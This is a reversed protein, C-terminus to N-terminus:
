HALVRKAEDLAGACANANGKADADRAREIAAKFARVNDPPLDGLNEEAHAVSNPTPQRHMTAEPSQAAAPGAAAAANLRADFAEQTAVIGEACPGAEARTLTLLLIAASAAVVDHFKM